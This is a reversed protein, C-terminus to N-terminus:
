LGGSFGESWGSASEAAATAAETAAEGVYGLSESWAGLSAGIEAIADGLTSWGGMMGYQAFINAMVEPTLAAVSEDISEGLQKLLSADNAVTQTDGATVANKASKITEQTTDVLQQLDAMKSVEEPSLDAMEIKGLTVDYPAIARETQALATDIKAITAPEEDSTSTQLWKLASDFYRSAATSVKSALTPEQVTLESGVDGFAEEPADASVLQREYLAKEIATRTAGERAALNATQAAMEAEADLQANSTATAQVQRAAEQRVEAGEEIANGPTLRPTTPYLSELRRMETIDQVRAVEKAAAQQAEAQTQLRALIAQRNAESAATRQTEVFTSTQPSEQLTTPSTDSAVPKITPTWPEQNAYGQERMSRAAEHATQVATERAIQDAATLAIGTGLAGTYATTAKKEPTGKYYGVIEAEAEQEARQKAEKEQKAKTIRVEKAILAGPIDKFFGPLETAVFTELTNKLPSKLYDDYTFDASFFNRSIGINNRFINNVDAIASSGSTKLDKLINTLNTKSTEYKTADPGTEYATFSDPKNDRITELLWRWSKRYGASNNLISENNLRQILADLQEKNRPNLSSQAAFNSTAAFATLGLITLYLLQKKM